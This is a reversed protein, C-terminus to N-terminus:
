KSVVVRKTSTFNSNSVKLLYVGSAVSETNIEQKENANVTTQTLVQKGTVDLLQVTANASVKVVLVNTAPNPYVSVAVEEAVNAVSTTTSNIEFNVPNGNLYAETSNFDTADIQNANTTFRVTMQAQTKDVNTLSFSTVRM